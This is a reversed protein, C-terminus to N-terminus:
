GAKLKVSKQQPVLSKLQRRYFLNNGDEVYKIPTSLYQDTLNKIDDKMLISHDSLFDAMHLLLTREKQLTDKAMHMSMELARKIQDEIIDNSHYYDEFREIPLGYAIPISGFGNRKFMQSLIKTAQVIDQSSGSTINEKGFILEEAMLGGLYVAVRKTLEGKSLFEWETPNQVFGLKDSDACVSMIKQPLTKLLVISLVAHGSEHVATLAQKDDHTSKRLEELERVIPINHEYVLNVGKKYAIRLLSKNSSIVVEDNELKKDVIPTILHPINTSIKSQITTLVPRVGQTPYVGEDYIMKSVSHDFYIKVGIKDLLRDSIKKLEINIIKEYAKQNLSPYIIHQNGFRAIQEYRFRSQLAKKIDPVKIKLSEKHFDDASIDSSYDNSMGYAEDLNGIVFILSTSFDKIKEKSSKKMLKRIYSITETGNMSLLKDEVDKSLLLGASEPALDLIDNYFEENIFRVKKDKKSKGFEYEFAERDGTIVGKEVILGQSILTTLKDFTYTFDHSIYSWTNYRLKGSDLLEWIMKSQESEIEERSFGVKKITKAHQMEDLTIICPENVDDDTMENITNRFSYFGKTEGMDFRFYRHRVKFLEVIRAILASKGVGTLGWLNVIFPREQTDNFLVWTGFKDMIEDIISDIGIFETKLQATSQKVFKQHDIFESELRKLKENM